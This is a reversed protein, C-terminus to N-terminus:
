SKTTLSVDTHLAHLARAVDAIVTRVHARSIYIALSRPVTSASSLAPSPSSSSSSLQEFDQVTLALRTDQRGDVDAFVVPLTPGVPRVVCLEPGFVLTGEDELADICRLHLEFM